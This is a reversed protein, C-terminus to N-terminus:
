WHCCDLDSECLHWTSGVLPVASSIALPLPSCTMWRGARQRIEGELRGIGLDVKRLMAAQTAELLIGLMNGGNRKNVVSCGQGTVRASAMRQMLMIWIAGPGRGLREEAPRLDSEGRPRHEIEIARVQAIAAVCGVAVGGEIRLQPRLIRFPTRSKVTTTPEACLGAEGRRLTVSIGAM